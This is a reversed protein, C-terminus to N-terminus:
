PSLVLVHGKNQSQCITGSVYLNKRLVIRNEELRTRLIIAKSIKICEKFGFDLFFKFIIGHLSFYFCHFREILIEQFQSGYM